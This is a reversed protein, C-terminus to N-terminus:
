DCNFDRKLQTFDVYLLYSSERSPNATPDSPKPVPDGTLLSMTACWRHDSAIQNARIQAQNNATAGTVAFALWVVTGMLLLIGLGMTALILWVARRYQADNKVAADMEDDSPVSM